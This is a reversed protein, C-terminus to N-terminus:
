VVTYATEYEVWIDGTTGQGSSPAVSSVSILSPLQINHPNNNETTHQVLDVKLNTYRTAFFSEITNMRTTLMTQAASIATQIVNIENTLRVTIDAIFARLFELELDMIMKLSCIYPHTLDTCFQKIDRYITSM